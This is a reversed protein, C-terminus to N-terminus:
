ASNSVCVKDFVEPLPRWGEGKISGRVRVNVRVGVRVSRTVNALGSACM